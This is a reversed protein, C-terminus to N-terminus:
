ILFSFIEEWYCEKITYFLLQTTGKFEYEIRSPQNIAEVRYTHGIRFRVIEPWWVLKIHYVIPSKGGLLFKSTAHFYGSPQWFAISFNKRTGYRSRSSRPHLQSLRRRISGQGSLSPGSRRSGALEIGGTSGARRSELSVPLGQIVFLSFLRPLFFCPNTSTKLQISLTIFQVVFLFLTVHFSPLNTKVRMMRICIVAPLLILSKELAMQQEIKEQLYQIQVSRMSNVIWWWNGTQHSTMLKDRTSHMLTVVICLCKVFLSSSIFFVVNTLASFVACCSGCSDFAEWFLSSIFYHFSFVNVVSSLWGGAHVFWLPHDM